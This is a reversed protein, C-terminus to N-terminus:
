APYIDVVSVVFILTQGYVEQNGVQSGGSIGGFNEVFTGAGLNVQSVIFTTSSCVTNTTHGLITGAQNPSLQNQLTIMTASINTVVVAWGHPNTTMGLTPLNEVVVASSNAGIIQDQWGYVPDPFSTGPNATINPFQSAFASPTLTQVVPYNYTLPQTQYCSANILFAPYGLNQPITIYHTRNGPLGVLGEWFGPVVSGFTLNGVVYGGSPTTSGVHVALPSYDSPSGGRSTYSLSKPWSANNLAVSYLSTDFVHGQQPGAAFLGIYNVTVNDGAQVTLPSAASPKHNEYYLFAFIGGGAAIVIVVLIITLVPSPRKEAM